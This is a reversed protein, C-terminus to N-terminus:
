AEEFWLECAYNWTLEEGTKINRAARVTIIYNAMDNEMEISPNRSHNYMMVYGLPMCYEEGKTDEDWQLLYGDPADGNEKVNKKSVTVVPSVEIVEGKKFDRLAFVGRGKNEGIQRWAIHAGKITEPTNAPISSQWDKMKLVSSNKM